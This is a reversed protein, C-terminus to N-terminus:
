INGRPEPDDIERLIVPTTAQERVEPNFIAQIAEELTPAMAIQNGYAVIVRALTPLSNQEAELYLPEVYLLSQEIPIMLLNGQVSRSGQRNWLSIQQSIVPDQNIRAEIQEPGYVLEQKPFQYLLMKGYQNGDSRAALGAILNNRQNPTYLRLLVFEEKAQPGLKMILYYPEMVQPENAYIERPTQWQDERNYFVQPNTMHYVTLQESQVRYLDQPYRIHTRLSLPMHELPQFMGPFVQQWSRILPDTPDVTFFHVDGHYADVVVKVSNRIYNFSNDGPDAYPHRDSTTFGDLIWYLFSEDTTQPHNNHKFHFDARAAVLYPDGDLELFPAIAQVRDRINRRFLLKTQPTFHQTFLMRWDKLYQAFLWRQWLHGLSVGGQGRYTNYVNEEGQPYDLESVDTGTMVYTNTIEGYYIRPQGIPISSRIFDSSTGLPSGESPTGIDKVFYYPLGGEGVQNVPSLTFGYGHTYILHENVWTQAQEPVDGYDLERAAILVQQITSGTETKLTYRDVDAGPFKYYSRIQQLQRNTELLPRTDWLRISQITIQNQSIDEVTLNTEPDVVREEISSLGFGSRTFAITREIFPTELILENPQVVFSQIAAPLLTGTVLAIILYSSGLTVLRRQSHVWAGKGWFLSRWFLYAALGVALGSLLLYAPLQTHVDTYSAGYTVGQSSYLLEFRKMGHCFAIALLLCGSLTNVHRWQDSTYPPCWGQSLRGGALSYHLIVAILSFLIIGIWWFELLELVPLTFIYFSIDQHFLPEQAAFPISHFVQMVRPWEGALMWGLGLSLLVALASLVLGPALALVLVLGLLLGGQWPAAIIQELATGLTQWRVPLLLVGTNTHFLDSGMRWCDAAAQGYHLLLLGIGLGGVALLLFLQGLNLGQRSDPPTRRAQRQYRQALLLNGLLWSATLGTAIAWIALQSGVRTWFVWGYGVEQFWIGEAAVYTVAELGLWLGLLIGLRRLWQQM